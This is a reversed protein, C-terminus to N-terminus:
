LAEKIIVLLFKIKSKCITLLERKLSLLETIKRIDEVIVGYPCERIPLILM